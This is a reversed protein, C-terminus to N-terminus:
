VDGGFRFTLWEAAVVDPIRDAHHERIVERVVPDRYIRM